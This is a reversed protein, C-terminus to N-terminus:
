PKATLWANLVWGIFGGASVVITGLTVLTKWGGNLLNSASDIREKIATIEKNTAEQRQRFEDYAEMRAQLKSLIEATHAITAEQAEQKAKIASFDSILGPTQLKDDGVLRATLRALNESIEGIARELSGYSQDPCDFHKSTPKKLAM